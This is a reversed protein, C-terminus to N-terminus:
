TPPRAQVRGLRAADSTLGRATDCRGHIAAHICPRRPLAPRWEEEVGRFHGRLSSNRLQPRSGIGKRRTCQPRLVHLRELVGRSRGSRLSCAGAPQLRPLQLLEDAIGRRFGRSLLRCSRAQILKMALIAGLKHRKAAVLHGHLVAVQADDVRVVPGALLGTQKVYSVHLPSLVLSRAAVMRVVSLTCCWKEPGPASAKRSVMVGEDREVRGGLWDVSEASRCGPVPPMTSSVTM